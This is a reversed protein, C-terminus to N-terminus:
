LPINMLSRGNEPTKLQKNEMTDVVSLRLQAVQENKKVKVPNPTDNKIEILHDTAIVVTPRSFLGSQKPEAFFTGDSPETSEFLNSM